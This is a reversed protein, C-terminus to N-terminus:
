PPSRNLKGLQVMEMVAPQVPLYKWRGEFVSQSFRGNSGGQRQKLSTGITDVSFHSPKPSLLCLIFM